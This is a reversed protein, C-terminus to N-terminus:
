RTASFLLHNFPLIFFYHSIKFAPNTFKEYETVKADEIEFFAM